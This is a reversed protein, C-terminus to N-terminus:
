LLFILNWLIVIKNGPPLLAASIAVGVLVSVSSSLVSLAVAIGSPTAIAIGIFQADITGRSYMEPTPWAAAM